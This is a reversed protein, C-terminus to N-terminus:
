LSEHPAAEAPPPRKGFAVYPLLLGGMILLTGLGEWRGLRPLVHSGAMLTCGLILMGRWLPFARRGYRLLDFVARGWVLLLLGAWLWPPDDPPMRGMQMFYAGGAGLLLMAAAMAVWFDRPSVGQRGFESVRM